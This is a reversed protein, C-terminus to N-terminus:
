KRRPHPARTSGLSWRGGVGGAGDAPPASKSTTTPAGYWIFKLDDSSQFDPPDLAGPQFIVLVPNGWM